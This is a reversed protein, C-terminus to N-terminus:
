EWRLVSGAGWYNVKEKQAASLSQQYGKIENLEAVYGPTNVAAPIAVPFETPGTLLVPKWTGANIDINSPALMPAEDTRGQIKKSCSIEIVSFMVAIFM